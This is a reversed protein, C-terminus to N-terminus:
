RFPNAAPLPASSSAKQSLTDVLDNFKAVNVAQAATNKQLVLINQSGAIAPYFLNNLFYYIFFGVAIVAIALLAKIYPKIKKATINM